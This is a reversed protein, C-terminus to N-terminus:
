TPGMGYLSRAPEILTCQSPLGTLFDLTRFSKTPAAGDALIRQLLHAAREGSAAMDVHPYTRYSVMADCHKVMAKTVNAHLDLSAVIPIRNGVARRVRSLLEGEGDDFHETVM